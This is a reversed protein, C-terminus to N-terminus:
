GKLIVVEATSHPEHPPLNRAIYAGCGGIVMAAFITVLLDQWSLDQWYRSQSSEM